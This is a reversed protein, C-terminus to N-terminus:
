LQGSDWGNNGCMMQSEQNSGCVSSTAPDHCICNLVGLFADHADADLTPVTSNDELAAQCASKDCVNANCFEVDGCSGCDLQMGCGDDIVGCNLGFDKCNFAVCGGSGSSSTATTARGGSGGTGSSTESSGGSGGSGGASGTSSNVFPSGCGILAFLLSTALYRQM